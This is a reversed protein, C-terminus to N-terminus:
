QEVKKCLNTNQKILEKNKAQLRSNDAQLRSNDVQLRSNEEELCNVIIIKNPARNKNLAHVEDRLKLQYLQSSRTRCMCMIVYFVYM